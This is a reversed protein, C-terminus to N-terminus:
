RATPTPSAGLPGTIQSTYKPCLTVVVTSVFEADATSTTALSKTALLGRNLEAVTRGKDLEACLGEGLSLLSSQTSGAFVPGAFKRHTVDYIFAKNGTADLAPAPSGCGGLVACTLATGVGTRLVLRWMM